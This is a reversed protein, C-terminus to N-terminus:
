FVVYRAEHLNGEITDIKSSCDHLMTVINGLANSGPIPVTNQAAASKDAGLAPTQETVLVSVLQSFLQQLSTLQQSWGDLFAAAPGETNARDAENFGSLSLWDHKSKDAIASLVSSQNDAYLRIVEIGSTGATPEGRAAGNFAQLANLTQTLAQPKGQLVAAARQTLDTASSVLAADLRNRVDPRDGTPAQEFAKSFENAAEEYQKLSQLAFGAIMHGDWGAPNLATAKRSDALARDNQGAQLESKAQAILKQYEGSQGSVALPLAVGFILLMFIPLLARSAGSAFVRTSSGAAQM